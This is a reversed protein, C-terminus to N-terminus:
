EIQNFLRAINRSVRADQGPAVSATARGRGRVTTGRGRRAGGTHISGANQPGERPIRVKLLLSLNKKLRQCRMWQGARAAVSHCVFGANRDNIGIQGAAVGADALKIPLGKARCVRGKGTIGPRSQETRHLFFQARNHPYKWGLEDVDPKEGDLVIPRTRREPIVKVRLQCILEVSGRPRPNMEELLIERGGSGAGCGIVNGINGWWVGSSVAERRVM